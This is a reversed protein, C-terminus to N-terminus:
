AYITEISLCDNVDINELNNDGNNYMNEDSGIKESSSTTETDLSSISKNTNVWIMEEGGNKKRTTAKSLTMPPTKVDM